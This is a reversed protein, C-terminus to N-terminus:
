KKLGVSIEVVRSDKFLLWLRGKDFEYASWTIKKGTETPKGLLRNVETETMGFKVGQVPIDQTIATRPFKISIVRGAGDCWVCFMSPRSGAPLQLLICIAACVKPGSCLLWTFPDRPDVPQSSTSKELRPRGLTQYYLGEHYDKISPLFQTTSGLEGLEGLPLGHASLWAHAENAKAKDRDEAIRVMVEALNEGKWEYQGETDLAVVPPDDTSGSQFDFAYLEGDDAQAFFGLREFVRRHARVNALIDEDGKAISEAYGEDLVHLSTLLKLWLVDALFPDEDDHAQWLVELARPLPRGHLCDESINKV